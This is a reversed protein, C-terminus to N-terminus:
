PQEELKDMHFAIVSVDDKNHWGKGLFTGKTQKRFAWQSNIILFNTRHQIDDFLVRMVDLVGVPQDLKQTDSVVKNSFSLLGDTAMFVFKYENRSYSSDFFPRYRDLTIVEEEQCMPSGDFLNGNYKTIKYKGGFKQFYAEQDEGSSFYSPYYCGAKPPDGHPAPEITRFCWEGSHKMGGEVGDGILLSHVTDNARYLTGLTATLCLKDLNKMSLVWSSAEAYADRIFRQKAFDGASMLLHLCNEGAKSLFRAGWDSHLAGSCGDSIIGYHEPVCLAYDQCVEHSSGQVFFSDTLIPDIPM